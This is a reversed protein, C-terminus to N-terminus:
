TIKNEHMQETVSNCIVLLYGFSIVFSWFIIIYIYINFFPMLMISIKDRQIINLWSIIVTTHVTNDCKKVTTILGSEIIYFKFFFTLYLPYINDLAINSVTIFNLKIASYVTYTLAKQIVFCKM